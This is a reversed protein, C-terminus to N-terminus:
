ECAILTSTFDFIISGGRHIRASSLLHKGRNFEAVQMVIQVPESLRSSQKALMKLDPVASSRAFNIRSTASLKLLGENPTENVVRRM